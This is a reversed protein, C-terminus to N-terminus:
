HRRKVRTYIKPVRVQARVSSIITVNGGSLATTDDVLRVTDDVLTADTTFPPTTLAQHKIKVVPKVINM